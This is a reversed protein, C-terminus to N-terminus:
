TKWFGSDLWESGSFAVNCKGLAVTSGSDLWEFGGFALTSGSRPFFHRALATGSKERFAM